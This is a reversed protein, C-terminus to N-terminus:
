PARALLRTALGRIITFLLSLKLKIFAFVFKTSPFHLQWKVRGVLRKLTKTFTALIGGLNGDCSSCINNANTLLKKRSLIIKTRKGTTYLINLALVKWVCSSRMACQICWYNLLYFKFVVNNIYNESIMFVRLTVSFLVKGDINSYALLM